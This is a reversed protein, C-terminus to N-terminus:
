HTDEPNLSWAYHQACFIDSEPAESAGSSRCSGFVTITVLLCVISDDHRVGQGQGVRALPRPHALIVSPM